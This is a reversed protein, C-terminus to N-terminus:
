WVMGAILGATTVSDELQGTPGSGTSVNVSSGATHTVVTPTPIQVEM